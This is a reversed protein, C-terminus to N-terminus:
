KEASSTERDQTPPFKGNFAARDFESEIHV